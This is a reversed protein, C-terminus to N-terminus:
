RFIIENVFAKEQKPSVVRVAKARPNLNFFQLRKQSKTMEAHSVKCRATGVIVLKSCGEPVPLLINLPAKSCYYPTAINMDTLSRPDTENSGPPVGISINTLKIQEARSGNVFTLAKIRGKPLDKGEIRLLASRAPVPLKRKKGRETTVYVAGQKLAEANEINIEVYSPKVAAPLQLSIEERPNITFLEMVRNIGVAENNSYTTMRPSQVDTKVYPPLTRNVAFECLSLWRGYEQTLRFRVKRARVPKNEMSLIAMPGAVPSGVSEWNTGDRSIEFQGEIAYDATRPGGTVVSMNQVAILEGFDLGFWQGPRQHCDSSWATNPKGDTVAHANEKPNGCSAIFVPHIRARNSLSAYIEDNIHAFAANLVPTMAYMAVEIHDVQVIKGGRWEPRTLSRMEDQINVCEFFAALRKNGKLDLARLITCGADGTLEFQRFWPSIERKLANMEGDAKQLRKGAKQMAAFEKRLRVVDEKKPEGKEVAAIFDDAVQKFDVSEERFYGHGNPLLWSNHDCFTQMEEHHEPYLRAIGDKWSRVSQFDTINWTYDAVGFLAVKNAEAHEMPNALFGSMQQKMEEEQGLGYTRGMSLRARKFDNCPWNWWVFTPRRVHENVWKQGNLTINNVVSDGTWMVPISKDLGDGLTNLFTSNTWSRNYGTPCMVLTQNVDPHKRIFNELIYNCLSVQREPNNIEGGSDDVLVAFDRVGLDYMQKLKNCLGDLQDKGENQSWNVTNNPHIGWFFRVHHQRAHKVLEAIEKAKDAPYPKYCGGGHHYPDDKPAYMYANMKNRGYFEIQSKRAAFSWPAGYYGEVTGRYPLDPWDIIKGMPLKGKKAVAELKDHPFPDRQALKAHPVNELLQCITQKAYYEGAADNAYVLLTGKRIDLAYGGAVNPLKAWMKGKAQPSRRYIKVREVETASSRLEMVHPRPYVKTPLDEAWVAGGLILAVCLVFLTRM